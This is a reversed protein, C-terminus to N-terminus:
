FISLIINVIECENSCLKIYQRDFKCYRSLFPPQRQGVRAPTSLGEVVPCVSMRQPHPALAGARACFRSREANFRHHRLTSTARSASSVAFGQSHLGFNYIVHILDQSERTFSFITGLYITNISILIWISLEGRQLAPHIMPLPPMALTM